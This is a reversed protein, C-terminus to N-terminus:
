IKTLITSLISSKEDCHNSLCPTENHSIITRYLHLNPYDLGYYTVHYTSDKNLEFTPKYQYKFERLILLPGLDLRLLKFNNKLVFTGKDTEVIHRKMEKSICKKNHINSVRINTETKTLNKYAYFSATLTTSTITPLGLFKFM